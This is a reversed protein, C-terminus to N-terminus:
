PFGLKIQNILQNYKGDIFEIPNRDNLNVIDPSFNFYTLEPPNNDHLWLLSMFSIINIM